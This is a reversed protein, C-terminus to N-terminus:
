FAANTAYDTPSWQSSPNLNM